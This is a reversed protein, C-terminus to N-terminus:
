SFSRAVCVGQDEIHVDIDPGGPRDRAAAVLLDILQEPALRCSELRVTAFSVIQSGGNKRTDVDSMHAEEM